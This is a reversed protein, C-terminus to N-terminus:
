QEIGWTFEINSDPGNWHEPAILHKMAAFTPRNSPHRRRSPWEGRNLAHNSKSVLVSWGNRSLWNDLDGTLVAANRDM